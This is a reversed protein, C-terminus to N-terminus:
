ELGWVMAKKDDSISVPTRANLWLTKNVSSTHGGNKERSIFKLPEHTSADFIKITKDMSSVAYKSYGPNYSIHNIHLTAAVYESRLTFDTMDWIKLYCDRGGSLLQQNGPNYALAFVSNTHHTLRHVIALSKRELLYISHDSAAVAILGPLLCINRLSKESLPTRKVLNMAPDWTNLVGDFGCSYICQQEEDYCIDFIGQQHAEINRDTRKEPLNISFINGTRNGVLLTDGHLCMSYVGTDVRAMLVGDGGRRADWGVIMGDGGATYVTQTNHDIASTYICDKHGTFEFLRNVIM